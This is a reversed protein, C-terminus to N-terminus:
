DEDEKEEGDFNEETADIEEVEGDVYESSLAKHAQFVNVSVQGSGKKGASLFDEYGAMKMMRDWWEPNKSKEMKEAAVELMKGYGYGQKEMYVRALSKAKKLYQSGINAASEISSCNFVVLAAQTANGGNRLFEELFRDAKSGIIINGRKSKRLARRTAVEKEHEKQKLGRQYDLVEERVALPTNGTPFQQALEKIEKKKLKAM